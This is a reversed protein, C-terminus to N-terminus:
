KMVFDFLFTDAKIIITTTLFWFFFLSLFLHLSFVRFLNCVQLMMLLSLLLHTGFTAQFLVELDKKVLQIGTM